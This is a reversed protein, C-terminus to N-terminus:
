RRRPRPLEPQSDMDMATAFDEGRDVWIPDRGYVVYRAAKAGRPETMTLRLTFEERGDVDAKGVVQFAELKEGSRWSWNVMRVPPSRREISGIPRDDRWAALAAELSQRAIDMTPPYRATDSECGFSATLLGGLALAGVVRSRECTGM